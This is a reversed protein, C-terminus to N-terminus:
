EVLQTEEERTHTRAHTRAHTCTEAAIPRPMATDSVPRKNENVIGLAVAAAAFFGFSPSDAGSGYLLDLCLNTM